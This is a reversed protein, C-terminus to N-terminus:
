ERVLGLARELRKGLSEFALGAEAEPRGLFARWWGGGDPSMVPRRALSACYPIELADLGDLEPIQGAEALADPRIRVLVPIISELPVQSLVHTRAERLGKVGARDDTFPLMAAGVLGDQLLAQTLTGETLGPPSDVLVVDYSLEVLARALTWAQPATHSQGSPTPPAPLVDVGYGSASITGQVEDARPPGDRQRLGASAPLLLEGLHPLSGADLDLYGAVDGNQADDDVVLVRWGQAALRVAANVALTSKGTGGKNNYSIVFAPPRRAAAAGVEGALAAAGMGAVYRALRADRRGAVEDLAQELKGPLGAGAVLAQYAARSLVVKGWGDQVDGPAIQAVVRVQFGAILAGLVRRPVEGVIVIRKV